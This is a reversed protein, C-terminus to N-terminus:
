SFALCAVGGVDDFIKIIIIVISRDLSTHAFREFYVSVLTDPFSCVSVRIDPFHTSLSVVTVPDSSYVSVLADPLSCVSM